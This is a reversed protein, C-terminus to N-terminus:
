PNGLDYENNRWPNTFQKASIAYQSKLPFCSPGASVPASSNDTTAPHM